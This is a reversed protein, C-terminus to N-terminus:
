QKFKRRVGAVWILGLGLLLMTTPEPVSNYNLNDFGVSSGSVGSAIVYAINGAVKMTEFQSTSLAATTYTDILTNSSDYAQLMTTDSADNSIGDLTVVTVLVGFDIRLQANGIGGFLHPFTTDNTGFVLSGTSASYPEAWVLPNIAYIAADSDGDFGLGISSLTVGSFLNSINTGVPHADPDVSIASATGALSIALVFVSLIVILKKM